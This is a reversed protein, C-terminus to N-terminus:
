FVNKKTVCFRLQFLLIERLLDAHARRFGTGAIETKELMDGMARFEKRVREKDARAAEACLKTRAADIEYLEEVEM